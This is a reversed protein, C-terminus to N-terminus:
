LLGQKLEEIDNMIRALAEYIDINEQNTDNHIVRTTETAIDGARYENKIPKTSKEVVVEKTM